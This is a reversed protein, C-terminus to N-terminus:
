YLILLHPLAFKLMGAVVLLSTESILQAPSLGQGTDPDTAELLFSYVDPCSPDGARAARAAYQQRVMSQFTELDKLLNGQLWRGLPLKVSMPIHGAQM